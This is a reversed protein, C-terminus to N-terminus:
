SVAPQVDGEGATAGGEADESDPGPGQKAYKAILSFAALGLIGYVLINGNGDISRIDVAVPCNINQIHYQNTLSPSLSSGWAPYRFVHIYVPIDIDQIHYTYSLFYAVLISLNSFSRFSSSFLM